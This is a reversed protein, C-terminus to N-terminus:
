PSSRSQDTESAHQDESAQPPPTERTHVARRRAAWGARSTQGARAIALADEAVNKTLTSGAAVVAGRGIRVPAVLISDSGIFAQDEIVTEHKHFGDYNCTITGAGINVDKGIRADGLYSLHNAKSGEGLTAKKMEVFNGVKAHAHVIVGPRLHAFPGIVVDNGIDAEELVCCDQITVGRALRTDRVRTQSRIVCDEGIHTRGELTVQPHIVTDRGISVEAQIRTTAPDYLTVGAQMWYDCIRQQMLREAAALDARTNVGLADDPEAQVATMPLQRRRVWAVIDTVYYEQQVNRPQLADLAEKLISGDVVYTGVNVERIGAEEPSADADEVIRQVQDATDRIIRGYGQPNEVIASLMSLAMGENVHRQVLTRLISESLLPTDGNLILYHAASPEGSPWCLPGAQLVAHGTGLQQDQRVFRFPRSPEATAVLAEQVKDGQHGVVVVVDADALRQALRGVHWIMPRGAVPHLVKPVKSHMRKGQGGAMVIVGLTGM